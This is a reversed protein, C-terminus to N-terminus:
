SRSRKRLKLKLQPGRVARKRKKAAREAAREAAAESEAASEDARTAELLLDVVVANLSRRGPWGHKWDYTHISAMLKTHLSMPFRLMVGKTDETQHNM